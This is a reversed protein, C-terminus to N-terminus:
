GRKKAKVKPRVRPWYGQIFTERLYEEEDKCWKLLGASVEKPVKEMTLGTRLVEIVHKLHQEPVYLVETAM